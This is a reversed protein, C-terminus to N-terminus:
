DFSFEHIVSILLINRHGCYFLRLMLGYGGVGYVLSGLITQATVTMGRPAITNVYASAAVWMLSFVPGHLLQVFLGFWPNRVFSVSVSRVASALLSVQLIRVEGFRRVVPSSLFFFLIESGLGTGVCLGLILQTAGLQKLYWFFFGEVAGLQAGAYTTVLLVLAIQQDRLLKCLASCLNTAKQRFSITMFCGNLAALCTFGIYVYFSVSFNTTGDADAYLFLLVSLPVSVLVFGLSGFLRQVGFRSKDEGLYSFAVADTFSMMSNHLLSAFNLIMFTVWFSTQFEGKRVLKEETSVISKHDWCKYRSSNPCQVTGNLMIFFTVNSLTLSCNTICQSVDSVDFATIPAYQPEHYVYPAKSSMNESIVPPLVGGLSGDPVCFVVCSLPVTNSVNMVLRQHWTEKEVSDEPCRDLYAVPLYCSSYETRMDDLVTENNSQVFRVNRPVLLLSSYVLGALLCVAIFVPKHIKYRDVAGGILPRAASSVFPLFGIIVGTESATLGTQKLYVPIFPILAGVGTFVCNIM